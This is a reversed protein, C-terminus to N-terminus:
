HPYPVVKGDGRFQYRREQLRSTSDDLVSPLPERFCEIQEDLRVVCVTSQPAALAYIAALPLALLVSKALLHVMLPNQM